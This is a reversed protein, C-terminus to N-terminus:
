SSCNIQDHNTKYGNYRFSKLLLVTIVSLLIAINSNRFMLLAKPPLCIKVLKLRDIGSFCIRAITPIETEKSKWLVEGTLSLEKLIYNEETKVYIKGDIYFYSFINEWKEIQRYM